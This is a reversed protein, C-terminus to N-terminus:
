IGEHEDGGRKGFQRPMRKTLKNHIRVLDWFCLLVLVMIVLIGSYYVIDQYPNLVLLIVGLVEALIPKILVKMKEGAPMKYVETSSVVKSKSKSAARISTVLTAVWIVIFFLFFLVVGNESFMGFVVAVSSLLIVTGAINGSAKTKKPPKKGQENLIAQTKSDVGAVSQLGRDNLNHERTFLINLQSNSLIHSIVAFAIAICLILSPKLTFFLNLVLVIPLALILSGLIYKPYDIPIDAAVKGTQGNIVAYSVYDKNRNAMFWVPFYSVQANTVRVSDKLQSDNEVNAGHCEPRKLLEMEIDAAAMARAQGEYVGAQVDATDAYFGSLYAPNFKKNERVNFPAIAESLEDSFSSSADFAFGRYDAQMDANVAYHDTIIYDGRRHSKNVVISALGEQHFDYNWYPMYIGRFKSIQEESRMSNPAFLAKKIIKKYNEACREKALKFPIVYSPAVMKVAKGELMVSAGCFSCFTAATDDDSVLEAGCQPCTYMTSDYVPTEGAFQTAAADEPVIKTDCHDCKVMQSIPDFRMGAGCGPCSVM